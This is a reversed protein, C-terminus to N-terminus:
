MIQAEIDAIKRALENLNISRALPQEQTIMQVPKRMSYILASLEAIELKLAALGSRLETVNASAQVSIELLELVDPITVTVDEALQEFAKISEHDPLFKALQERTLPKRSM